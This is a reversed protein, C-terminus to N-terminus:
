KSTFAYVYNNNSKGVGEWCGQLNFGDKDYTKYGEDGSWCEGYFQVGFVDYHKSLADEACKKVTKSMHYWDIGNRFNAVLKELPREGIHKDMFCGIPFYSMDSGSLELIFCIFTTTSYWKCRFSFKLM